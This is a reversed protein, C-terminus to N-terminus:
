DEVLFYLAERHFLMQFDEDMFRLARSYFDAIIRYKADIDVANAILGLAATIALSFSLDKVAKYLTFLLLALMGIMRLSTAGSLFCILTVAMGCVANRCIRRSALQKAAGRDRYFRLAALLAVITYVAFLNAFFLNTVNM